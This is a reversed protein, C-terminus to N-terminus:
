IQSWHVSRCRACVLNNGVTSQGAPATRTRAPQVPWSNAASRCLWVVARRCCPVNEPCFENGDGSKEVGSNPMDPRATCAIGATSHDRRHTDARTQMSNEDRARLRRGVSLRNGARSKGTGNVTVGLPCKRTTSRRAFVMGAGGLAIFELRDDNGPARRNGGIGLGESWQDVGDDDALDLRDKICQGVGKLESGVAL